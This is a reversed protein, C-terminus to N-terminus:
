VGSLKNLIEQRENDSDSGGEDEKVSERYSLRVIIIRRMDLMSTTVLRKM